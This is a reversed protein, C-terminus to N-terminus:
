KELWAKMKEFEHGDVRYHLPYLGDSISHDYFYGNTMNKITYDVLEHKEDESLSDTVTKCSTLALSEVNNM